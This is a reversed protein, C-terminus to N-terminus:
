KFVKLIITNEDVRGNHKHDTGNVGQIIRKCGIKNGKMIDSLIQEPKRLKKLHSEKENWGIIKTGQVSLGKDSNAMIYYLNRWKVNYLLVVQAGIIATPPQSVLKLATDEKLYKMGKTLQDASKEKIKRPKRQQVKSAKRANTYSECESKLKQLFKGYATKKKPQMPQDLERQFERDHLQVLINDLKEAYKKVVNQGIGIKRFYDYANFNTDEYLIFNDIAEEVEGIQENERDKKSYKPQKVVKESNEKAVWALCRDVEERLEKKFRDVDEEFMIFGRTMIRARTMVNFKISWAPVSKVADIEEPTFGNTKMYNVLFPLADKNEYYYNYWNLVRAYDATSALLHPEPEPGMFRLQSKIDSQISTM